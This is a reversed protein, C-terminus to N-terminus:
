NNDNKNNKLPDKNYILARFLSEQKRLKRKEKETKEGTKQEKKKKTTGQIV